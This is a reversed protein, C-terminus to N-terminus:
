IVRSEVGVRNMGYGQEPRWVDFTEVESVSMETRAMKQAEELSPVADKTPVRSV